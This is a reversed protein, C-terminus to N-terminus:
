SYWLFHYHLRFRNCRLGPKRVRYPIGTQARRDPGCLAVLRAALAIKGFLSPFCALSLINVDISQSINYGSLTFQVLLRCALRSAGVESARCAGFLRVNAM